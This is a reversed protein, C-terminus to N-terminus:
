GNNKDEKRKQVWKTVLGSVIFTVVTSVVIIICIAVLNQSILGWYQLLKAVPPIFMIPMASILLDAAEGIKEEKLLGTSLALFLLVLGYVASPVPLPILAYLLEGLFSFFVIYAFQPIYKM